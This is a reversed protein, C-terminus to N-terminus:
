KNIVEDIAVQPTLSKHTKETVIEKALNFSVSKAIERSSTGIQVKYEGADAVWASKDTYFSALDGAHLTLTVVQSQGPALLGTKAFAKLEQAPKDLTQNPATLYLQVVEKGAIKGTNKVTVSVSISGKFEPASVKVDSLKFKTYSLGYGFEYAPKIKFSDYYRYGVYVGEQYVVESPAGVMPNPAQGAPRPFEKGPFNKASPVDQYAVPFTSALKGSPNVKGSLVDAIANGGELGPQWALLIGDVSDRWSAVEIVGGINLVVVVKKGKAHFATSVGNILAKEADTLTFDNEVKRDAGEGANRGITIIAADAGDAEKEVLSTADMEPIPPPAMFFNPNKPQKAKADVIYDAYAKALAPQVKIGANALGQPLMVTYAKHVDGSGTGGAILAYSTNGFVAVKKGKTLPLAAGENKLLVMGQAAAMRSVAAHGKLDPKDSYKYGKFTPSKLIIKLMRTVNADLQAISLTGGKVAAVIADSQDPNGPMLLDNGANMQAVADSGGFWDTMVFGKFGWERKLIDTQLDRRESTYTGNVRNYSSMVTWPQSAKVAIEFGKLYIERMARESVITNISNRNTEQNNAAFHKISTGVGQSQIGNVIAATMSGAVLPDESYYEFNRGGLPNRHINLAPGLIVDVGYERIENGFAVGVKKVLATDWSSALLTAVPFATAYYTKKDNPRTPDIRLGAPGDSVTISPIGLRLIAHTRGATGAVKEPVDYAEPDSPPLTFGGINVPKPKEGKVPPPMGPMKFGMGVVLKAKEEVTMADVVQKLSSKGLQPLPKKGQAHATLVFASFLVLLATLPKHTLRM